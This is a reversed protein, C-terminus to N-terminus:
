SLPDFVIEGERESIRCNSIIDKVRTEAEGIRIEIGPTIEGPVEISCPSGSCDSKVSVELQNKKNLLIDLKKQAQEKKPTYEKYMEVNRDAQISYFVLNNKLESIESELKELKRMLFPNYGMIIKTTAGRAAGLKEGVYLKSNCYITGGQLRREVKIGKGAFLDSHLSNEDIIINEGAMLVANEAFSVKISKNARLVASGGGKIGAEAKISGQAELRAGGVIGKALINAASVEFGTRVGKHLVANGIFLINGTHFNVDRHVNLTSYVAIVDENYTVYGHQAALLQDPNEPNVVTGPGVPLEKSAFIFRPDYRDRDDEDIEKFQALAQEKVVNQVFGLNFHDATGDKRLSPKLSDTRHDPDFYHHLYFPM